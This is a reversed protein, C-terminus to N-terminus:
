DTPQGRDKRPRGGKSKERHKFEELEAASFLYRGGVLEGIRGKQAHQVVRAPTIGLIGAAQSTGILRRTVWAEVAEHDVANADQGSGSRAEDSKTPRGRKRVTNKFAECEAESFRPRGEPDREGIRGRDLHRLLVVHSCGAREAAQLSNLTRETSLPRNQEIVQEVQALFRAMREPHAKM